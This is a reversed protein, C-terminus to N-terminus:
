SGDFVGRMAGIVQDQEQESLSPHFPLSITEHYIATSTPFDSDELGIQRHLLCDVGRRAQVGFSRLASEAEDFGIKTRLTFRFLFSPLDPYGVRADKLYRAVEQYRQFINLRRELFSKYRNLQSLGLAAQMDTFAPIGSAYNPALSEAVIYARELLTPDNVMLAGGEGTTLCKTAHFSYVGFLGLTGALQQHLKLGFAQCADEIIPFGLSNLSTIDCPHGFIHVAVIARTRTSLHPSVTAITIVGNEDVDCLRPKAGVSIIAALVSPCVYTPIIVEDNVGINLVKLALVLASTGSSSCIANGYNLNASLAREFARVLAGRAIMQSELVEDVAARDSSDIWPRSHPIVHHM